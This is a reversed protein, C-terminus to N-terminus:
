SVRERCSARGIQGDDIFGDDESGSGSNGEDSRDESGLHHGGLPGGFPLLFGLADADSMGDDSIEWQRGSHNLTFDTRQAASLPFPFRM